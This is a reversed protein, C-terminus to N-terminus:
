VDRKHNAKHRSLSCVIRGTTPVSTRRNIHIFSDPVTAARTERHQTRAIKDARNGREFRGTPADQGDQLSMDSSSTRNGTREPLISEEKNSMEVFIVHRRMLDRLRNERTFSHLRSGTFKGRKIFVKTPKFQILKM